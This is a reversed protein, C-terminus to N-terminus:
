SSAPVIATFQTPTDEFGDIMQNARVFIKSAVPPAGYKAVYMTTIDAKGQVPQPCVGLVRFDACVNRGASLPASARILTYETPDDGCAMKIAITGSTNTIELTSPVLTPFTVEPPPTVVSAAGVLALNCNVRVFLQCGTLPGKQGLRAKSNYGKASETWADRQAQTLGRWAKAFQTLHSRVSMQSSSRPNTPIALTRIIQGCRGNQTVKLGCKGSGPVDLIKM